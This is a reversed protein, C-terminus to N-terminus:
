ALVWSCNTAPAFPHSEPTAGEIRRAAQREDERCEPRVLPELHERGTESTLAL